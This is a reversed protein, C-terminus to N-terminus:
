QRLAKQIRERAEESLSGGPLHADERPFRRLAHRLLRLQRGYRRCGACLLLHVRLGMREMRTLHRDLGESQLRASEACTLSLLRLGSPAGRERPNDNTKM